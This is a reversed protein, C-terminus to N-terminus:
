LDAIALERMLQTHVIFCEDTIAPGSVRVDEFLM